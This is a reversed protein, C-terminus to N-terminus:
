ELMEKMINGKAFPTPLAFLTGVTRCIDILTRERKSTFDKKIGPGIALFNLQQCGRCNDGYGHFDNTHRGHDSLVIFVSKNKYTTDRQVQDWLDYVIADLLIISEYYANLMEAGGCSDKADKAKCEHPYSYADDGRGSGLNLYVFSPHNKFIYAAAKEYIANEIVETEGEKFSTDISTFVNTEFVPAYTKGYEKNDSHSLIKLKEKSSAFYASNGSAKKNWYEFLTPVAPRITESVPNEFIHWMGTLLSMQAPIPYTLERNYFKTCITGLPRLKSWINDTYLHNKNGFADDYRVGNVVIIFLYEAQSKKNSAIENATASASTLCLLLICLSLIHSKM